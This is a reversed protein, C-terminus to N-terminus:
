LFVVEKATVQMESITENKSNTYKGLKINGSVIVRSGKCKYQLITKGLKDWASVQFVENGVYLSFDCVMITDGNIQRPSLQPDNGLFGILTVNNYYTQNSM